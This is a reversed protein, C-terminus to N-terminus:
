AGPESGCGADDVDDAGDAAMEPTPMDERLRTREDDVM